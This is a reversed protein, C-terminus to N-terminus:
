ETVRWFRPAFPEPDPRDDHVPDVHVDGQTELRMLVTIFERGGIDIGDSRVREYLFAERVSEGSARLHHLATAAARDRTEDDM